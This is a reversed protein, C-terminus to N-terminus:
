RSRKRVMVSCKSVECGACWPGLRKLRFTEPVEAAPEFGLKSFFGPTTTGLYVDRGAVALAARVLAAGTGRGRHTHAVGLSCLELCDPHTKLGVLGIMGGETEAVWFDDSMMGPYDLGLRVALAVANDM